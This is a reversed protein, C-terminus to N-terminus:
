KILNIEEETLDYLQYVLNNIKDEHYDIKNQIQDKGTQLTAEQLDRNLQLLQEVSKVIQDHAQAEKKNSFDITKIPLKQLNEILIRPFIKKTNIKNTYIFDFLM